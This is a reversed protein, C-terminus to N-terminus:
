VMHNRPLALELLRVSVATSFQMPSPDEDSEESEPDSDDWANGRSELMISILNPARPLSM